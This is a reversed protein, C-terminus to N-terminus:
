SRSVGFGLTHGENVRQEPILKNGFVTRFKHIATVDRRLGQSHLSLSAHLHVEATDEESEAPGEGVDETAARRDRAPGARVSM